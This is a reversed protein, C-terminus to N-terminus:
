VGLRGFRQRGDGDFLRRELHCKADVGAWKTPTFALKGRRALQASTEIALQLGVDAQTHLIAEAGVLKDHRPTALQMQGNQDLRHAALSVLKLDRPWLHDGM